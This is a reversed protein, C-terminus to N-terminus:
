MIALKIIQVGWWINNTVPSRHSPPFFFLEDNRNSLSKNVRIRSVHLIHHAGLSALLHFIPNLEANLPNILYKVFCCLEGCSLQLSDFYVKQWFCKKKIKGDVSNKFSTHCFSLTWLFLECNIFMLAGCPHLRCAPYKPCSYIDLM